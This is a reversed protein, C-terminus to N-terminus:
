NIPLLLCFFFVVLLLSLLIVVSFSSFFMSLFVLDYVSWSFPFVLSATSFRFFMSHRWPFSLDDLASSSWRFLIFDCSLFFLYIYTYTYIYICICTIPIFFFVYTYHIYTLTMFYCGNVSVDPIITSHFTKSFNNFLRDWMFLM